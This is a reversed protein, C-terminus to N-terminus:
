MSLCVEGGPARNAQHIVGSGYAVAYDVPAEFHEILPRLRARATEHPDQEKALDGTPGTPLSSSSCRYSLWGAPCARHTKHLYDIRLAQGLTYTQRLTRSQIDSTSLLALHTFLTFPRVMEFARSCSYRISPSQLRPSGLKSM